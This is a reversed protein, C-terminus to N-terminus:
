TILILIFSKPARFFFYYKEKLKKQRALIQFSNQSVQDQFNEQLLSFYKQGNRHLVQSFPTSGCLWNTDQQTAMTQGTWKGFVAAKSAAESLQQMSLGIHPALHHSKTATATSGCCMLSPLLRWPLCSTTLQFHCTTSCGRVQMWRYLLKQGGFSESWNLFTVQHSSIM